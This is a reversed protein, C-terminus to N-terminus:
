ALRVPMLLTTFTGDDASRFAVPQLAEGVEIVVDPGLAAAVADGAYAPDLAVDVAPGDYRAAISLREDRRVLAVEGARASVLVADGQRAFHRLADHLAARDVVVQHAQRDAVLVDEYDPFDGRTQPEARDLGAARVVVRGDELSVAATGDDAPLEAHLGRLVEAPLLARFEADSSGVAALDRVALRYRDTAVLRLSGDKAEILVCGLEPLEGDRSAAPLVQDLASRLERASVTTTSTMPEEPPTTRTHLTRAVARADWLQRELDRVRDDVLKRRVRPGVALYTGVDALAFGLGRLERILLADDVQHEDYSRYGSAPDVYAPPLVRRDGYFRVASVSLGSRRALEGITLRAGAGARESM